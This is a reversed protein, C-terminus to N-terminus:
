VAELTERVLAQLESAPMKKGARSAWVLHLNTHDLVDMAALHAASDEIYFVNSKPFERCLLDIQRDKRVRGLNFVEVPTVGHAGLFQRMREVAYWGSRATIVFARSSAAVEKLASLGVGGELEAGVVLAAAQYLLHRRYKLEMGECRIHLKSAATSLLDEEGTWTPLHYVDDDKSACVVGDFDFAYVAEPDLPMDSLLLANSPVDVSYSTIDLSM